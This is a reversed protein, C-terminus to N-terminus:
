TVKYPTRAYIHKWQREAHSKTRRGQEGDMIPNNNRPISPIEPRPPLYTGGKRLNIRQDGDALYFSFFASSDLNKMETMHM